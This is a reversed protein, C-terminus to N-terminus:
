LSTAMPDIASLNRGKAVFSASRDRRLSASMLRCALGASDTAFSGVIVDASASVKRPLGLWSPGV